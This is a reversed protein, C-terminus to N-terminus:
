ELFVGNPTYKIKLTIVDNTENQTFKIYSYFEGFVNLTGLRVITVYGSGNSALPTISYPIPKGTYTCKWGLEEDNVKSLIKIRIIGDEGIMKKTIKFKYTKEMIFYDNPIIIIKIKEGEANKFVIFEEQCINPPEITLVVANNGNKNVKISDNSVIEAFFPIAKGNPKQSIVKIEKTLVDNKIGNLDIINDNECGIIQIM